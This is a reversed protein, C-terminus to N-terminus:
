EKVKESWCLYPGQGSGLIFWGYEDNYGIGICDPPGDVVEKCEKPMSSYLADWLDPHILDDELDWVFGM